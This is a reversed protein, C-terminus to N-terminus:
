NSLLSSFRTSSFVVAINHPLRPDSNLGVPLSWHKIYTLDFTLVLQKMGLLIWGGAFISIHLAAFFVPPLLEVAFTPPM